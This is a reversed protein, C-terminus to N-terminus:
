EKKHKFDTWTEQIMKKMDALPTDKLLYNAAGLDLCRNVTEMDAVSTLMIIFAEPFESIVEKLAEEGNKIPMNIDFLALDPKERRYLDVAEQGNKAEGVVETNMSTMVTKILIRIHHEDDAIIVRPKRATDM